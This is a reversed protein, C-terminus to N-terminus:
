GESADVEVSAFTTPDFGYREKQRTYSAFRSRAANGIARWFPREEGTDSRVPHMDAYVALAEGWEKGKLSRPRRKSVERYRAAFAGAAAIGTWDAERVSGGPVGKDEDLGAAIEILEQLAFNAFEFDPVSPHISGVVRNEEVQRRVAKVNAPVDTDFSIMSFRRLALDQTLGDQLKLVANDREAAIQGKLNVLEVGLLAPQPLIFHIAHFETAGEVYWRVVSGTQLRYKSVVHPRARATDDLPRSSGYTLKRGNPAWSGFAEDEEPWQVGHTEEFGRRIVEAMHRLWLALSVAGRLQKRKQWDSLRLLLYLDSNREALAAEIRLSEHAAKWHELDLGQVLRRVKRQYRKGERGLHHSVTMVSSNSLM